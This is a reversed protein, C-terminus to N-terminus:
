ALMTSIASESGLPYTGWVFEYKGVPGISGGRAINICQGGSTASLM